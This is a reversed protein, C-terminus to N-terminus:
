MESKEKGSRVQGKGNNIANIELQDGFKPIYGSGRDPNGQVSFVEDLEPVAMLSSNSRITDFM